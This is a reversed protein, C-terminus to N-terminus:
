EQRQFFALKKKLGKQKILELADKGVYDGADRCVFDMGAELPNDGTRLDANWLHFGTVSSVLSYLLRDNFEFFLGV